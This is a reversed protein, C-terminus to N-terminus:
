PQLDIKIAAAVATATAADATMVTADAAADAV